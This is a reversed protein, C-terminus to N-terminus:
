THAHRVATPRRGPSTIHSSLNGHHSSGPLLRRDSALNSDVPPTLTFTGSADPRGPQRPVSPHRWPVRGTAERWGMKGGSDLEDRRRELRTSLDPTLHTHPKPFLSVRAPSIGGTSSAASGKKEGSGGGCETRPVERPPPPAPALEHKTRAWIKTSCPGPPLHQFFAAPVLSDPGHQIMKRTM